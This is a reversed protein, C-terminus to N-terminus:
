VVREAVIDLEAFGERYLVFLDVLTIEHVMAVDTIAFADIFDQVPDFDACIRVMTEVDDEVNRLMVSVNVLTDEHFVVDVKERTMIDGQEWFYAVLEETTVKNKDEKMSYNM